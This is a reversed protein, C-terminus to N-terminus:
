VAPKIPQDASENYLFTDVKIPAVRWPASRTGDIDHREM